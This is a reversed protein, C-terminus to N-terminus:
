RESFSIDALVLCYNTPMLGIPYIVLKNRDGHKKQGNFNRGTGPNAAYWLWLLSPVLPAVGLSLFLSLLLLVM